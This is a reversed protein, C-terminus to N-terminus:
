KKGGKMRFIDDAESPDGIGLEGSAWELGPACVGMNPLGALTDTVLGAVAAPGADDGLAAINTQATGCIERYSARLRNLRAVADRLMTALQARLGDVTTIEGDLRSKVWAGDEPSLGSESVRERLSAVLGSVAAPDPNEELKRVDVLATEYLRRYTAELTDLVGLVGELIGHVRLSLEGPTTPMAGLELEFPTTTM